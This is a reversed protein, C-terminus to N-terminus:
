PFWSRIPALAEDMSALWKRVRSRNLPGLPGVPRGEPEQGDRAQAFRLRKAEIETLVAPDLRPLWIPVAGREVAARFASHHLVWGFAEERAQSPHALGENLILATAAPRFGQAEFSALSALDDVRPGITYIAVPAVGAEAMVGALDPADAILRSLSTDGGGLDLLASRREELAFRLLDELWAAIGAADSSPPQEVGAIFAALSRNQPDLAAAVVDGGAAHVAELVYRLLTTKGSRGPGSVFWVKPQGSLDPVSRTPPPTAPRTDSAPPLGVAAEPVGDFSRKRQFLRVIRGGDEEASPTHTHPGTAAPKSAM